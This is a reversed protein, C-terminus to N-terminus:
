KVVPSPAQCRIHELSTNIVERWQDAIKSHPHQIAFARAKKGQRVCFDYDAKLQRLRDALGNIAATIGARTENVPRQAWLVEDTCNEGHWGVKTTIVPLGSAMAEFTVGSCGESKSMLAFASLGRYWEGMKDMSVQTNNAGPIAQCKGGWSCWKLKVGALECAPVIYKSFGKWDDYYDLSFNGACGVTFEDPFKEAPHFEEINVGNAITHPWMNNRGFPSVKNMLGNNMPVVYLVKALPPGNGADISRHSEVICVIRKYAWEPLKVANIWCPNRYIYLDADLNLQERDGLRVIRCDFEKLHRALEISLREGCWGKHDVIMCISPRKHLPAPPPPIVKAM